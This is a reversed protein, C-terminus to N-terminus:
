FHAVYKAQVATAVLLQPPPLFRVQNGFGDEVVVEHVRRPAVGPARGRGNRRRKPLQMQQFRRKPKRGFVGLTIRHVVPQHALAPVQQFEDKKRLIGIRVPGPKHGPLAVLLQLPQLGVRGRRQQAARQAQIQGVVQMKLAHVRQEEDEGFVFVPLVAAQQPGGRRKREHKGVGIQLGQRHLAFVALALIEVRPGHRQAGPRGRKLLVHVAKKGGLAAQPGVIKGLGHPAVQAFRLGVADILEVLLANRSVSKDLGVLGVAVLQAAELHGHAPHRQPPQRRHLLRGAAVPKNHGARPAGGGMRARRQHQPRPQIQAIGVVEAARGAVIRGHHAVGGGGPVLAEFAALQGAEALQVRVQGDVVEQFIRQHLQRKGHVALAVVEALHGGLRALGQLGPGEAVQQRKLPQIEVVELGGVQVAVQPHRHKRVVHLHLESHRHRAAALHHVLAAVGQGAGAVRGPLGHRGGGAM